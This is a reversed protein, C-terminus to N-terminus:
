FMEELPDDGFKIYVVHGDEDEPQGFYLNTDVSM